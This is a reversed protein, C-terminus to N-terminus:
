RTSHDGIDEVAEGEMSADELAEEDLTELVAGAKAEAPEGLLVQKTRELARVRLSATMEERREVEEILETACALRRRAELLLDEAVTARQRAQATAAREEELARASEHEAESRATRIATLEEAHERRVRALKAELEGSRLRDSELEARIRELAEAGDAASREALEARRTALDTAAAERRVEERVSELERVRLALSEAREEAVARAREAAAIRVLIRAHEDAEAGQAERLRRLEAELTAIRRAPLADVRPRSPAKRPAASDARPDRPPRPRSDMSSKSQTRKPRLTDSM